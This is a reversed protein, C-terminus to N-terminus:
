NCANDGEPLAQPFTLISWEEAGQPSWAAPTHFLFAAGPHQDSRRNSSRSASLETVAPMVPVPPFLVNEIGDPPGGVGSWSGATGEILVRTAAARNALAGRVWGPRSFRLRRSQGYGSPLGRRSWCIGCRRQLLHRLQSLPVGLHFPRAFEQGSAPDRQRPGVSRCTWRDRLWRSRPWWNRAM